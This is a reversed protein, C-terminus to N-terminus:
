SKVMKENVIGQIEANQVFCDVLTHEVFILILVHLGESLIYRGSRCSYTGRFYPNLRGEVVEVSEVSAEVLTHEVFILILVRREKSM